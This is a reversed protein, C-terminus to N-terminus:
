PPGSTPAAGPAASSFPPASAPLSPNPGAASPVPLATPAPAGMSSPATSTTMNSPGSPTGSPASTPTPVTTTAAPASASTDMPVPANGAAAAGSEALLPKPQEKLKIPIQRGRNAGYGPQGSSGSGSSSKKKAQVAPARQVMKQAVQASSVIDYTRATLQHQSAPLLVGTYCQSPIPPLPARNVQQAVLNLKPLQATVATAHDARMEAALLLDARTLDQRSASYCYDMADTILEQTYRRAQELLCAMAQPTVDARTMGHRALATEAVQVQEPLIGTNSVMSSTDQIVPLIDEVRYWLPDARRAAAQARQKALDIQATKADNWIAATSAASAAKSAPKKKRAPRKPKAQTGAAGSAKTAKPKSSKKTKAGTASAAPAPAGSTGPAGSAPAPATPPKAPANSSM